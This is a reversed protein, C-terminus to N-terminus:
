RRRRQSQNAGHQRCGLDPARVRVATHGRGSRREAGNRGALGRLPPVIIAHLDYFERLADMDGANWAEYARRVTEVNEQSM